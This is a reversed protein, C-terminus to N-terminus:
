FPPAPMAAHRNGLMDAAPVFRVVRLNLGLDAESGLRVRRNLLRLDPKPSHGQRFRRPPISAMATTRM